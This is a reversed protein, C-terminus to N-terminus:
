RNGYGNNIHTIDINSNGIDNLSGKDTDSWEYVGIHPYESNRELMRGLLIGAILIGICGFGIYFILQIDNM